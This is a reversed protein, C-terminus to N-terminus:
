KCYPYYYEGVHQLNTCPFYVVNQARIAPFGTSGVKISDYKWWNTVKSGNIAIRGAYIGAIETYENGSSIIVQANCQNMYLVGSVFTFSITKTPSIPCGPNGIILTNNSIVETESVEPTSVPTSTDVHEIEDTATVILQMTPQPTKSPPIVKTIETPQTAVKTGEPWNLDKALPWPGFNQGVLIVLLILTFWTKKIFRKLNFVPMKSQM